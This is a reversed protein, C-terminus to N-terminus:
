GHPVAAPRVFAARIALFARPQSHMTCPHRVQMERVDPGLFVPVVGVHAPHRQGVRRAAAQAERALRREGEGRVVWVSAASSAALFFWVM